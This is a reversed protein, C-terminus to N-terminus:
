GDADVHVQHFRAYDIRRRGDPLQSLVDAFRGGWVIEDAVYSHRTHVTQSLTSDIGTLSVVIEAKRRALTAASEGHLPSATDLPHMATWTLVFFANRDRLLHLDRVRRLQEGEATVDDWVLSVTLRADVLHANRANALRFMLVRRGDRRGVIARDSFVVRATPVSFKAFMMGTLLPLSVVSVVTQVVVLINAWTTAPALHGYGITATTQISFFFCDAYSGPRANAISGPQLWYLAAFALNVLLYTVVLGGLLRPWSAEVVSHYLDALPARRLGARVIYDRGDRSVVRGAGDAM